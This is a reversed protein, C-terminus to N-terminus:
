NSTALQSIPVIFPIRAPLLSLHLPTFGAAEGDVQVPVPEDATVTVHTGKLYVAGPSHTHLGAAAQILLNAMEFPSQCRLACVDLVSDDSRAHPLVPFGTGYEPINGIFAVGAAPGFVKVGDVTVTIPPFRYKLATRLVPLAYSAKTIPGRRLKELEHIVCADVGVGAMALCLGDGAEAVDLRVVRRRRLAALIQDEARDADWCIGLHQGMLNATGLPVILLPPTDSLAQTADRLAWQAVSRLTGDGGIAIVAAVPRGTTNHWRVTRAPDLFLKPAYGEDTLRKRLGHALTRAVGRGAIPNAFILVQEM